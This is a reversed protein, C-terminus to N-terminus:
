KDDVDKRCFFINLEFMVCNMRKSECTRISKTMETIGKYLCVDNFDNRISTDTETRTGTETETETETKTSNSNNDSDSNGNSNWNAMQWKGNAM